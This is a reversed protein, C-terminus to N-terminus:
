DKGVRNVIWEAWTPLGVWYLLVLLALIGLLVMM